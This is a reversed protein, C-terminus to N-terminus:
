YLAAEFSGASIPTDFEVAEWPGKMAGASQALARVDAIYERTHYVALEDETAARAAIPQMQATLGSGDLFQKIRETIYVASPHPEPALTFSGNRMTVTSETGSDHRLYREDFVLGTSYTPM